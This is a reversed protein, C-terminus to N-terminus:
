HLEDDQKGGLTKQWEIAGKPDLKLVWADYGGPGGDTKDVSKPSASKSTVLYGGDSTPVVTGAMDQTSGGFDKQWEITAQSFGAQLGITLYFATSLILKKKKFM